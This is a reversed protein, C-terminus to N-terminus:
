RFSCQAFRWLWWARIRPETLSSHNPKYCQKLSKPITSKITQCGCFFIHNTIYCFLVFAFNSFRASIGAIVHLQKGNSTKTKAINCAWPMQRYVTENNSTMNGHDLWHIPASYRSFRLSYSLVNYVWQCPEFLSDHTNLFLSVASSRVHLKIIMFLENETVSQGGGGGLFCVHFWM